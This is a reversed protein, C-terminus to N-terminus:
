NNPADNTYERVLAQAKFIKLLEKQGVSSVDYTELLTLVKSTSAVMEPDSSVEELTLSNKIEETIRTLEHALAVKFEVDSTGIGNIYKSLLLRQEPLLGIYKENFRKVYSKLVLSDIPKMPSAEGTDSMMEEICKQEMLVRNKVPSKKGFIQALNAYSKYQPIFNKYVDSGLETNIVKILRSQENFIEQSEIQGHEKLVAQLIRSALEQDLGKEDGLAKYCRLEKGLATDPGFSERIIGQITSVKNSNRSVVAKTLERILAEYLFATNRKKNHKAKM